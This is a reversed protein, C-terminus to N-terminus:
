PAVKSNFLLLQFRDEPQLHYLVKELAEFQRELKDWRISLSIDFLLIFESHTRKSPATSATNFLAGAQFYGPEPDAGSQRLREFATVPLGTRLYRDDKSRYFLVSLNSPS